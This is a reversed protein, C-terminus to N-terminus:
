SKFFIEGGEVIVEGEKINQKDYDDTRATILQVDFDQCMKTLVALGKNTFAVDDVIALRLAKPKLNLRAAQLMVGIASCQFSSYQFIYRQEKEQNHYFETDYEGNYKLWVEVRDNDQEVPVIHLGKVGTDIGAYMKRLTDVQTEYAGQDAIWTKWLQYRRYMENASLIAAKREELVKIEENIGSTDIESTSEEVTELPKDNLVSYEARKAELKEALEKDGPALVPKEGLNKKSAAIDEQLALRVKEEVEASFHNDLLTIVSSLISEQTTIKKENQLYIANEKDYAAQKAETDIRVKEALALGEDKIKQLEEVRKAKIQALKLAKASTSSNLIRDKELKKNLISEEITAPDTYPIGNLQVENYGEEEFREMYAGSSQCLIRSADRKKKAKLIKEVVEDAGLMDLEPKFLREILKRHETQNETFLSSMNFTLDTTLRKVYEGATAKVGDIIPTYPNGNDDKAYLFTEFKPSGANAGRKYETVKAGVYLKIDGDLLLAETLYGNELVDKSKIAETGSVATQLLSILTSKGQGSEGVLVLLKKALLDPTLAVAKIIGSNEARFGIITVQKQDEM